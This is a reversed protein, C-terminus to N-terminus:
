VAEKSLLRCFQGNRARLRRSTVRMDHVFEIDTGERAGVKYSMMEHFYNVIIRRACAELTRDPSIGKIEPETVMTKDWNKLSHSRLADNWVM